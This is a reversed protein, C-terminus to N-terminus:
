HNALAKSFFIEKSTPTEIGNIFGCRKYGMKKHVKLSIKNSPNTSSFIKPYGKAAIMKEAEEFLRRAIGLKRSKKSVFVLEVYAAPYDIFDLTFHLLGVPKKNFYALMLRKEKVLKDFKHGWYKPNGIAERYPRYCRSVDLLGADRELALQVFAKKDSKKAVRIEIQM